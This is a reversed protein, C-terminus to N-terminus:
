ALIGHIPCSQNGWNESSICSCVPLDKATEEKLLLEDEFLKEVVCNAVSVAQVYDMDSEAFGKSLCIASYVTVFLKDKNMKRNKAKLIGLGLKAKVAGPM